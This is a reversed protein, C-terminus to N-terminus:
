RIFLRQVQANDGSPANKWSGYYFGAIVSGSADPFCGNTSFNFIDYGNTNCSGSASCYSLYYGDISINGILGHQGIGGIIQTPNSFVNGNNDKQFGRKIVTYDNTESGYDIKIDFSQEIDNSFLNSNISYNWDGLTGGNFSGPPVSGSFGNLSSIQAVLTWGGNDDTMDCYAMFEQGGSVKVKYNKTGLSSDFEKIKKCTPELHTGTINKNTTETEIKEETDLIVISDKKTLIKNRKYIHDCTEVQLANENYYVDNELIDYECSSHELNWESYSILGINYANKENEIVSVYSAYSFVPIFIFGTFIKRKM